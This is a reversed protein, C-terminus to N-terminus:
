TIHHDAIGTDLRRLRNIVGIKVLFREPVRLASGLPLDHDDLFQSNRRRERHPPLTTASGVDSAMGSTGPGAGRVAHNREVNSGAARVDPFVPDTIRGLTLSDTFMAKPNKIRPVILCTKNVPPIM